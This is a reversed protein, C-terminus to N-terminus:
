KVGMGRLANAFKSVRALLDKYTVRTVDGNDGEFILAVKDGLGNNVNRDLCNYSVNLKGDAFWKFIAGALYAAEQAGQM